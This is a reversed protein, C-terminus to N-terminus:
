AIKAELNTDKNDNEIVYRTFGLSTEVSPSEMQQVATSGMYSSKSVWNEPQATPPHDNSARGSLCMRVRGGVWEVGLAKREVM